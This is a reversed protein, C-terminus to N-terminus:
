DENLLKNLDNLDGNDLLDRLGYFQVLCKAFKEKGYKDIMNCIQTTALTYREEYTM